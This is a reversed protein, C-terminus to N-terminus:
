TKWLISAFNFVHGFNPFIRYWSLETNELKKKSIIIKLNTVCVEGGGGRGGGGGSGSGGFHFQRSGGFHPPEAISLVPEM